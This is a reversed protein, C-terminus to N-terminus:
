ILSISISTSIRRILSSSRSVRPRPRRRRYHNGAQRGEAEALWSAQRGTLGDKERGRRTWSRGKWEILDGRQCIRGKEREGKEGEIKERRVKVAKLVAEYTNGKQRNGIQRPEMKISLLSIQWRKRHLSIMLCHPSINPNLSRSSYAIRGICHYNPWTMRSAVGGRRRSSM